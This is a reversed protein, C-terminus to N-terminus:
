MKMVQPKDEKSLGLEFCRLEPPEVSLAGLLGTPGAGGSGPLSLPIGNCRHLVFSPYTPFTKVCFGNINSFMYQHVNM